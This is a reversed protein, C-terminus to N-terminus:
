RQGLQKGSTQRRRPRAAGLDHLHARLSARRQAQDALELLKPPEVTDIKNLVLIKTAACTRCGASSPRSKPTSAKVRMSSCPPRRRRRRRQGLRSGGHGPRAQAEARLNGAYRCLHDAGHRRDCHRAGHQADDAGQALRDLGENRRASQHADIQRREARRHPRCFRLTNWRRPASNVRRGKPATQGIGERAIFAAAAAQEALRKALGKAEARRIARCKSPFRSNRRTIPAPDRSRAISRRRFAARKRGNRCRPRRIACRASRRACERASLPPSSPKPRAMARTSSSRASSRNAFM